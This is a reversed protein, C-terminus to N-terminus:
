TCTPSFECCRSCRRRMRKAATSPSLTGLLTRSMNRHHVTDVTAFDRANLADDGKQMLALL